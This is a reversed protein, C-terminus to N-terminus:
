YAQGPLIFNFKREAYMLGWTGLIKVQLTSPVQINVKNSDKGNGPTLQLSGYTLKFRLKSGQLTTQFSLLKFRLFSVGFKFSFFFKSDSLFIQASSFAERTVRASVASVDRASAVASSDLKFCCIDWIAKTM